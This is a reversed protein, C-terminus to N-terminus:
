SRERPTQPRRRVGKWGVGDTLLTHGVKLRRGVSPLQVAVATILNRPRARDELAVDEAADFHRAEILSRTQHHDNRVRARHALTRSESWSQDDGPDLWTRRRNRKRPGPVEADHGQGIKKRAFRGSVPGRVELIEARYAALGQAKALADSTKVILANQQKLLPVSMVQSTVDHLGPDEVFM